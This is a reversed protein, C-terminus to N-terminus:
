GQTHENKERRIGHMHVERAWSEQRSTICVQRRNLQPTAHVRSSQICTLSEEEQSKQSVYSLVPRELASPVNATFHSPCTGRQDTLGNISCKSHKTRTMGRANSASKRMCLQLYTRSGFQIAAESIHCASHM